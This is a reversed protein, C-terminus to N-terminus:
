QQIPVIIRMPRPTITFRAPTEGVVDGDLQVPMPPQANLLISKGKLHVVNKSRPLSGTAFRAVAGMVGSASTTTFIVVDLLGDANDIFPYISFRPHIIAAGNAVLVLPSVLELVNGDVDITFRAPPLSVSRAAGLLYALWGMRRKLSRNTAMFLRSDFGAGAMHLFRKGNCIGADIERTQHQGFILRAAQAPDIPVGIYKAIINTSGGPIIGMPVDRDGLANAVAAVTGDGGVAIVAEVDGPDPILGPDIPDATTEHTEVTADPPAATQLLGMLRQANGRTTPNVFAVFRREM